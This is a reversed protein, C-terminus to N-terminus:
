LAESGDIIAEFLNRGLRHFQLIREDVTGHCLCDYMFVTKHKSGQREFRHRSQKRVIPSLPAEYYIGYKAAQLNLGTAMSNNLLLVRVDSRRDFSQLAAQTDKTQGNILVHGIKRQKLEKALTNGSVIFEHFVIVKYSLGEIISLTMDLKPNEDFMISARQGTDDDNYGLFGSSIQRMRIFSNRMITKNGRAARLAGLAKEYYGSADELLHVYKKIHVLKPLDAQDAEYRISINSLFKHLISQKTKDFVFITGKYQDLKEKFFAARYLGLTEGLTYGGDVLFMQAWLDIPDRGFPTGTLTLVTKCHKSMRRCLRFPLKAKRKCTHVEDLILGDVRAMVRRMLTLNPQLKTIGKKNITKRCVMTMFGAYTTIILTADSREFREWKEETSGHLVLYKTNTHKAIERAWEWCNVRREVLVLHRRAIGAHKFYRALAVALLTKGTGPDNLCALRREQVGLLFSARQHQRLKEWIPPVAPLAAKEKELEAPTANKFFLAWDNRQRSLFARIASKKILM